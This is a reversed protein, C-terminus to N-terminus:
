RKPGVFEDLRAVAERRAISITHGNSWRWAIGLQDLHDALIAHIDRSRNSFMYRPYRYVRDGHAIESRNLGRADLERALEFEHRSRM